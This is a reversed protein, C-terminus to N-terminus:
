SLTMGNTWSCGCFTYNACLANGNLYSATNSGNCITNFPAPFSNILSDALSPSAGLCSTSDVLDTCDNVSEGTSICLGNVCQMDTPCCWSASYISANCAGAPAVYSSNYIWFIDSPNLVGYWYAIGSGSACSAETFFQTNAEGSDDAALVFGTYFVIVLALFYINRM